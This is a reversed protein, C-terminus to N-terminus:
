NKFVMPLYIVFTEVVTTGQAQVSVAPEAVSTVTLTFTDSLNVPAAPITVVVNVTTAEGPNLEGTSVAVVTPWVNDAVSLSFSDVELGTNTVTFTYTIVDGPQGTLTQALPSVAVDQTVVTMTLPVVVLSTDPDNSTVCLNGTAIDGPNFGTSDFTVGIESTTGGLTTGSIPEVSVWPMDVTQDCIQPLANALSVDDYYV